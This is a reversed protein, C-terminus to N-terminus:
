CHSSCLTTERLAVLHNRFTLLRNLKMGLYSPTPYFSLLGRWTRGTELLTCFHWITQMLLIEPFRPPSTTCISTSYFPLWFRDGFFATKLRRLRSQKSDGATLTFSRNQVLEVIMRFMHKNHPLWLLKCTLGRHWVTDYAETLNVFVVGAKKKTEFYNEINQTLLVIQDM